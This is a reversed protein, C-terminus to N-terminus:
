PIIIAKKLLGLENKCCIQFILGKTENVTMCEIASGNNIAHM